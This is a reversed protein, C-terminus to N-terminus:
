QYLQKGGMRKTSLRQKIAVKEPSPRNYQAARDPDQQLIPTIVITGDQESLLLTTQLTIGVSHLLADPIVIALSAGRRVLKKM